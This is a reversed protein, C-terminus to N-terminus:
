FSCFSTKLYLKTNRYSFLNLDVDKKINEVIAGKNINLLMESIGFLGIIIWVFNFGEYLNFIGFTFRPVGYYPDLGVTGIAFRFLGALLGKLYGGKSVSAIVVVGFLIM